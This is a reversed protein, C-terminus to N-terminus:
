KMPFIWALIAIALSILAIISSLWNFIKSKQADFKAEELEKQKAKYLDDLKNYNILLQEVQENLLRIQQNSKQNQENLLEIQQQHSKLLQETQEKIKYQITNKEDIKLDKVSFNPTIPPMQKIFSLDIKPLNIEDFDRM